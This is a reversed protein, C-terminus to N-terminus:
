HMLSQSHMKYFGYKRSIIGVNAIFIKWMIVSWKLYKQFLILCHNLAALKLLFLLGQVLPHKTCRLFGARLQFIQTILTFTVNKLILLTPMLLKKRAFQFRLNAKTQQLVTSAFKLCFHKTVYFKKSCVFAFNISANKITLAVFRGHM